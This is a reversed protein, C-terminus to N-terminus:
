SKKTLSTGANQSRSFASRANRPLSTQSRLQVFEYKAAILDAMPIQVRESIALDLGAFVLGCDVVPPAFRTKRSRLFDVRPMGKLHECEPRAIRFIWDIGDGAARRRVTLDTKHGSCLRFIEDGYQPTMEIRMSELIHFDGLGFFSEKVCRTQVRIM